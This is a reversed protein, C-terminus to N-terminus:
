LALGITYTGTYGESVSGLTAVTLISEDTWFAADKANRVPNTGQYGSSAHVADSITESFTIQATKKLVNDIFVELHIHTARGDYWGPYIGKFTAKGTSNSVQYGRLWTEGVYGKVGLPGSQGDYGSYYGDKNCYWIDIRANSVAACNSNANVVQFTITLPVGSQGGTIDTRNLPNALEGGDPYPYPGEISETTVSCADTTSEPSVEEASTHCSNLLFSAGFLGMSNKLFDNRKM